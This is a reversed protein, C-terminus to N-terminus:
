ERILEGDYFMRVARDEELRVDFDGDDEENLIIREITGARGVLHSPLPIIGDRDSLQIRVRDGVKLPATESVLDQAPLVGLGPHEGTREMVYEALNINFFVGAAHDEDRDGALWAEFHRAASEKARLFEEVGSALTWNPAGPTPDPYKARGKTLHDAWRRFMPGFRISLFNTKGETTDRVMGGAFEQRVGSDKIEFGPPPTPPGFAAETV